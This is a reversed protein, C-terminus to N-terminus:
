NNDWNTIEQMDYVNTYGNEVLISAAIASRRGARCFVIIIADKDPLESLRSELETYPIHISGEIHHTDFEDQNRVDLLIASDNGEYLKSAEAGSIVTSVLANNLPESPSDSETLANSEAGTCGSLMTISMLILTIIIIYKKLM